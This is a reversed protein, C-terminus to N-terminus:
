ESPASCDVCKDNGPLTKLRDVNVRDAITRATSKGMTMQSQLGLEIQHEIATVWVDREDVSGAEFHWQRGDNTMIVFETTRKQLMFHVCACARACAGDEFM